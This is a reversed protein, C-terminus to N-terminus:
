PSKGSVFGEPQRWLQFAKLKSPSTGASAIAGPKQKVLKGKGERERPSLLVGIAEPLGFVFFGPVFDAVGRLLFPKPERWAEAPLGERGDISSNASRAL